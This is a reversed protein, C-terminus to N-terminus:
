KLILWPITSILVSNTRMQTPWLSSSSTFQVREWPVATLLSQPSGWLAQHVRHSQCKQPFFASILTWREQSQIRHLSAPAWPPIHTSAWMSNRAPLCLLSCSFVLSHDKPVSHDESTALLFNLVEAMCGCVVLNQWCGSYAQFYEKWFRWILAELRASLKIIVGHSGECIVCDLRGPKQGM